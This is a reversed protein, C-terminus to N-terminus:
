EAAFQRSFLRTNEMTGTVNLFFTTKFLEWEEPTFRIRTGTNKISTGKLFAAWLFQGVRFPLLHRRLPNAASTTSYLPLIVFPLLSNCFQIGLFMIFRRLTCTPPFSDLWCFGATDWLSTETRKFICIPLQCERPHNKLRWTHEPQSGLQFCLLFDMRTFLGNLLPWSAM